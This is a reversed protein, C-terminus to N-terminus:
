EMVVAVFWFLFRVVLLIKDFDNDLIIELPLALAHWNVGYVVRM